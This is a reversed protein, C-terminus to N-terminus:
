RRIETTIGKLFRPVSHPIPRALQPIRGSSRDGSDPDAVLIGVIERGDAAASSAARALQEATAVGASVGLVTVTTRTTDAVRPNRGDVVAVVVTLAANPRGDADADDM